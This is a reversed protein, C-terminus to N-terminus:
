PCQLVVRKTCIILSKITQVVIKTDLNIQFINKISIGFVSFCFQEPFFFM